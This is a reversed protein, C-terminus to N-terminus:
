SAVLLIVDVSSMSRPRALGLDQYVRKDYMDTSAYAKRAFRYDPKDFEPTLRM